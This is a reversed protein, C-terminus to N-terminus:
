REQNRLYVTSPGKGVRQIRGQAMLEQLDRRLQRETVEAVRALEGISYHRGLVMHDLIVKERPSTKPQEWTKSLYMTLQLIGDKMRWTPAKAKAEKCARIIAPIGSGMQEMYGRFLFVNAISPNVLRSVHGQQANVETWNEPLDAANMFVLRDHHIEVTVNGTPREYDRHVLANVLAERVAYPPYAPFDTRQIQDPRFVMRDPHQRQLTGIAENLCRIAPGSLAMRHTPKPDSGGSYIVLRLDLHPSWRRPEDAFLVVCGNTLQSGSTLQLRSLLESDDFPVELAFRKSRVMDDKATQLEAANCHDLLFGPMAEQEWRTLSAASRQMLHATEDMSARMETDGLRVYVHPGFRYPKSAGEAVEVLVVEKDNILETRVLFVPRPRISEALLKTLEDSLEKAKTVGEVKGNDTVGWIVSGGHQNTLACASAAISDMRRRAGAFVTTESEGKAILDQLPTKM